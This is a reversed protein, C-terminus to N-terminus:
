IGDAPSRVGKGPRTLVHTYIMTTQVDDHGLLEQVTRIDCGSDLLHTAFSHRLTHPTAAKTLGARRVAQAMAKQVVTEHLHHRHRLGSREDTYHSSAPFVYQWGWERDARPHKEGLEFPLPARGLGGQLDQAHQRRVRELHQLVERRCSVPLMTVRDKAGKGDRVNVQNTELDLDHVRLSLCESLRLGTGYLLHCVLQPVGDLEGLVAKVELRTLVLPLRKPARAREINEVLGLDKGLARRYLFLLACLAQSQTSAGVHEALALHSLFGRIEDVGMRRPDRAGYHAVFRRVWYSYARETRRSYHLTRISRRVRELLEAHAPDSMRAFEPNPASSAPKPAPAPAEQWMLFPPPTLAELPTAEPLRASRQPVVPRTVM